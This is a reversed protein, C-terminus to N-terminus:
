ERKSASQLAERWAHHWIEIPSPPGADRLDAPNMSNWRRMFDLYAEDAQKEIEEHMGM